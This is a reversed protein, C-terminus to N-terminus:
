FMKLQEVASEHLVSLSCNPLTPVTVPQQVLRLPVPLAPPEGPIGPTSVGPTSGDSDALSDEACAAPPSFCFWLAGPSLVGGESGYGGDSLPSRPSAPTASRQPSRELLDTLSLQSNSSRPSDVLLLSLADRGSSIGLAAAASDRGPSFLLSLHSATPSSAGDAAPDVLHSAAAAMPSAAAQASVAAPSGVGGSQDSDLSTSTSSNHSTSAAAPEAALRAFSAADPSQLDCSAPMAAGPEEASRHPHPADPHCTDQSVRASDAAAPSDAALGSSAEDDNSSAERTPSSSVSVGDRTFAGIPSTPGDAAAGDSAAEESAGSNNRAPSDSDLSFASVTFETPQPVQAVWGEPSLPTAAEPSPSPLPSMTSSASPSGPSSGPSDSKAATPILKSPTAAELAQIAADLHSAAADAEGMGPVAAVAAAADGGSAAFPVPTNPPAALAGSVGASGFASAPSGSAVVSPVLETLTAAALAAAVLASASAGPAVAPVAAGAAAAGKGVAPPAPTNPLAAPAGSVSRVDNDDSGVAACSDDAEPSPAFEISSTLPFAAAEEASSAQAPPADPVGAAEAASTFIALPSNPTSRPPSGALAATSLAGLPTPAHADNWCEM